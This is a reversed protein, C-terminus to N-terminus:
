FFFFYTLFMAYLIVALHDPLILLVALFCLLIGLLLSFWELFENYHIVPDSALLTLILVVGQFSFWNVVACGTTCSYFILQNQFAIDEFFDYCQVFM